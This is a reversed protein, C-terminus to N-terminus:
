PRGRKMTCSELSENATKTRLIFSAHRDIRQTRRSAASHDSSPPFKRNRKGFFKGVLGLMRNEEDSIKWGVPVELGIFGSAKEKRKILYGVLELANCNNAGVLTAKFPLFAGQPELCITGKLLSRMLAVDYLLVHCSNDELKNLLGQQVKLSFAPKSVGQEILFIGGAKLGIVDLLKKLTVTLIDNLDQTANMAIAISNLLSLKRHQRKLMQLGDMRATIDKAIAEYGVIEGGARRVANGSM